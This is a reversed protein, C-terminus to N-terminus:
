NFVVLLVSGPAIDYWYTNVLFFFVATGMVTTVQSSQMIDFTNAMDHLQQLRRRTVRLFSFKETKSCHLYLRLAATNISCWEEISYAGM